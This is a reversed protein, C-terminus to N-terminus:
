RCLGGVKQTLSFDPYTTNDLIRSLVVTRVTRYVATRKSLCKKTYYTLLSFLGQNALYKNTLTLQLIPSRAILWYGKRSYAWQCAKDKDVGLARLRKVRTKIKKWQKWIFQRIRRRLWKDTAACLGKCEAIGFYNIWGVLARKLEELVCAISIGRNRKTIRRIKDKLRKVSALHVRIYAGNVDKGLSFGLFKLTSPSGVESKMQNVTLKLRNELFDSASKMVREGARHSKVYINCDDAYRVFVHGRRELEKDFVDLYINSLLPSLPGGLACRHFIRLAATFRWM